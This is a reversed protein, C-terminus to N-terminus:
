RLATAPRVEWGTWLPRYGMRNWFPASLPNLQAYHLLTTQVGRADLVAHAHRVLAAGIGTGREGPRVFMTQLYATAGGRAMGAIWGSLGPPQVHVLGVPRGDREALWAWAPRAALAAQTEARVLAETAPRVIAAGFLADYRIVGLELETVADLDQPSAERIALGALGGTTASGPSASGPSAGGPSAGGPSAGGPSASGPSASGPSAGGSRSADASGSRVAIVTLPQMGHRLLANVGTVDRSPWSIMAATDAAAAEPLAALHDRWQGLLDKVAADTDLDRIRLILSFRAAMGWTQNLTGGPIYEHRCVALGAPRGNSGTTVFPAACGEPFEARPPLFRDLGQWRRGVARNIEDVADRVVWPM